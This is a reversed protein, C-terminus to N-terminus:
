RSDSLLKRVVALIDADRHPPRIVGHFKGEPNILAIHGSHTILYDDAADTHQAHDDGENMAPAASGMATMPKNAAVANPQNMPESPAREHDEHNILESPDSYTVFLQKTLVSLAVRSGTIGMFDDDYKAVYAAMAAADDREPDVTGLIVRVQSQEDASLQGYFQALETMTLPCIDPCHTFGFFVLSWAGKLDDNSFADGNQDQLTFDVLDRAEPFETAGLERMEANAAQQAEAAERFSDRQSWAQYGRYVAFGLLVDVIVFAILLRKSM